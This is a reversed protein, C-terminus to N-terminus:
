WAMFWGSQQSDRQQIHALVMDAFDDLCSPCVGLRRGKRCVTFWNKEPTDREGIGCWFCSSHTTDLQSGQVRRPMPAASSEESM